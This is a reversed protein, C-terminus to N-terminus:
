FLESILPTFATEYVGIKVTLIKEEGVLQRRAKMSKVTKNKVARDFLTIDLNHAIPNSM